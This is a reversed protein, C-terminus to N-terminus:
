ADEIEYTIEMDGAWTIRKNLDLKVAAEVGLARVEAQTQNKAEIPVRLTITVLYDAM